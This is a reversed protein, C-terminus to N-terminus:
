LSSCGGVLVIFLADPSTAVEDASACRWICPWGVAAWSACPAFALAPSSPHQSVSLAFPNFRERPDLAASKDPSLGRGNDLLEGLGSKLIRLKLPAM